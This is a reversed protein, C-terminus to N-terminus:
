DTDMSQHILGMLGESVFAMLLNAMTVKNAKKAKLQLKGDVTKEDIVASYSVTMDADVMRKVAFKFGNVHAFAKFRMLWIQFNKPEGNFTPIKVLTGWTFDITKRQSLM